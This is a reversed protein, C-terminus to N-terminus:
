FGRFRNPVLAREGIALALELEQLVRKLKLGSIDDLPTEGEKDFTIM